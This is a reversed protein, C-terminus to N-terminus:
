NTVHMLVRLKVTIVKIDMAVIAIFIDPLKQILPTPCEFVVNCIGFDVKTWMVQLFSLSWVYIVDVFKQVKLVGEGM